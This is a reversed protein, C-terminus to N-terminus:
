VLRVQKNLNTKHQLFTGSNSLPLASSKNYSTASKVNCLKINM